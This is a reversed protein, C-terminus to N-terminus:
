RQQQMRCNAEFNAKAEEMIAKGETCLKRLEEQAQEELDEWDEFSEADFNFTVQRSPDVAAAAAGTEKARLVLLEALGLRILLFGSLQLTPEELQSIWNDHARSVEQADAPRSANIFHEMQGARPIPDGLTPRCSSWVEETIFFLKVDESYQDEVEEHMDLFTEQLQRPLAHARLQLAEARRRTTKSETAGQPAERPPPPQPCGRTRRSAM